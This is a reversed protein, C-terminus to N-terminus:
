MGRLEVVKGFNTDTTLGSFLTCFTWWSMRGHEKHLDIGYQQVFGAYILAEDERMDYLPPSSPTSPKEPEMMKIFAEYAAARKRMSWPRPGFIIRVCLLVKDVPSLGPDNHVKDMFLVADFPAKIHYAARGVQVTHYDDFM